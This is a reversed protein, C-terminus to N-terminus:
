ALVILQVILHMLELFLGVHFKIVLIHHQAPLGHAIKELFLLQQALQNHIYAGATKKKVGDAQAGLIMEGIAIQTLLVLQM